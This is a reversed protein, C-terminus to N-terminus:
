ACVGLHAHLLAAIAAFLTEFDLHHGHIALLMVAATVVAPQWPLRPQRGRVYGAAFWGVAVAGILFGILVEPVTHDHLLVRSAGILAAIAAGTGIIALRTWWRRGSALTLASCLYVTTGFSAHGSPTRVYWPPSTLPCTRFGIKVAATLLVCIMVTTAWILATRMAGLYLLYLFLLISIPVLFASDGLDTVAHLM